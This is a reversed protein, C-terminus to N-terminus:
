YDAYEAPAFIDGLNDILTQEEEACAQEFTRDGTAIPKPYGWKEACICLAGSRDVPSGCTYMYECFIRWFSHCNHVKAPWDRCRVLQSNPVVDGISSVFDNDPKINIVKEKLQQMSIPPNFTKRGLTPNPGSYAFAYADTQAGTILALGGGLSVGTTRLWDFSKGNANYNNRLLDNAFDTTIRYYDSNQLHDSAVWSTTVLLDDYISDWVWSFPMLARVVQTLVTGLYM